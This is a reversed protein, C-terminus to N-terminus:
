PRIIYILAGEYSESYKKYQAKSMFAKGFKFDYILGNAEDYIDLFGKGSKGNFYQNYSLGRSGFRREYRKLLNMAYTHKATGAFRGSGAIASEAKVAAREVLQGTTLTKTAMMTIGKSATGTIVGAVKTVPIASVIKLNADFGTLENDYRDKGTINGKIGDWALAIPNFQDTEYVFRSFYDMFSGSGDGGYYQGSGTKSLGASPLNVQSNLNTFGSMNPPPGAAKRSGKGFLSKFNKSIFNGASKIGKSWNNFNLNKKSWDKIGWNDWNDKIFVIANGIATQQNPCDACDGGNSVANGSIDINRTPNALAYSYQNFNQTNETDQILNDASLFRHLIPDYLRANMNILGVSQLHEHGTYGRDLFVLGSLMNGAGDQVKLIKGWADFLRKEVIVGDEDTIAMISGQYDRHLYFYKSANVGDGKFIMPASYADGNIYTVFELAGTSRNEKIEMSGDASYHKRYKRQWFDPNFDGYYMVSRQNDANYTIYINDVGPENILQPNNYITYYVQMERGQPEQISTKRITVDDFWINGQGNNDLRINLKKINAPVLFTGELKTWQNTVNSVVNSVNTFYGQEQNTKMFLVIEAQPGESKFWASFTYQTPEDNDIAIWKDSHVYQETTLTNALKISAIGTHYTNSDYSFFNDAPHRAQGWGEKSEMGDNFIGLRNQYYSVGSSSLDVSTNQYPKDTKTYRYNGVANDSIKGSPDYSQFASQGNADNFTTLRDGSDYNFQENWSGIVDYIRKNLNDTNTNFETKLTMINAAPTTTKDHKIETLYGNSDYSNTMKIGNGIINELLQGEANLSNTQWLVHSSNNDLIQFLDGNKYVNKTAVTSSKGNLEATKTEVDIRGFADYTFSRTFKTMGPKDEVISLLKKSNPDYNMTTFAANTAIEYGDIYTIKTPLKTTNDYEYITYNDSSNGTIIRELPKGTNDRVIDNVYDGNTEFTIEGFDNNTYSYTGASDDTLKNKRGWNDQEINIQVGNYDTKKLNGDAFYKYNITGGNDQLSMLDGVANIQGTRFKGGDTFSTTLGSYSLTTSRGSSYNNQIPRSYIDFIVENWKSPSSFYPESEKFNRDYIDYVYDVYSFIGNINKTGSKIKRGLDDFTEEGASGDEGTETVVTKYSNKSYSYSTSKNLNDNKINLKKFWPDYTYSISLGYPNTEKKLFGNTDYEFLTILGELDIVKTLFRGSGDYEYHTTRGSLSGSQITKQILNGFIDYSNLESLTSSNSTKEVNSLLNANNYQYVESYSSTDGSIAVSTSKKHVRDLIYPNASQSDYETAEITTQVTSAGEKIVTTTNLPNNFTNFTNSRESITNNIVNNEINSLNQLKFVKNLQLADSSNYNFNSKLVYDSPTYGVTVPYYMYPVTFNETVAGRLSIDNKSVTSFATYADNHWDTQTVSRFGVFGLGQLNTVAGYYAFLRKKYVDNSQKEVKSVLYLNPDITIDIDPYNSIGTSPLYVSNYPYLGSYSKDLPTYTIIEQVGDGTTIKTLLNGRKLDGVSNFFHIRSNQAFAIKLTSSVKNIGNNLKKVATQSLYIPIAYINIDSQNGTSGSIPSGTFDGTANNFYCYVTAIGTSSGSGKFCTTTILDSKDDNDADIAFYNYTNYSDNARFILNYQKEANIISTGTSTYKVWTSTGVTKPILFDSKGDGNYDGMLIPKAIDIRSDIATNQYLLVLGNSDNLSYIRVYGADFVFFDSKGDGDFDAVEIKSAASLATVLEGANFLFNTTNDRKLDIFYVKKSTITTTSTGTCRGTRIDPVCSSTRSMPMDIAIVDTLGDGNFDGSLIKKPFIKYTTSLVTCSTNCSTASVATPFDVTRDYQQIIPYTLSMSYVTFTYNTDTKKVVTWGQPMVKNNWSLWTTTFIDEFVGVPHEFGFNANVGSELGSYFWYKNKTDKPYIIFDMKGDEDFDGTVTEATQTSIGSLDVSTTVPLYTLPYGELSSGYSFVTPNYSKAGDGSKETISQIKDGALVLDYNRYGIGSSTVIIKQLLKNNIFNIDGIYYNEPIQRDTYTFQIKNIEALISGFGGYSVESIRLVNNTVAYTYHISVGQANQWYTIAYTSLSRSDTSSGYEAVSGDPYELRFYAPGYNAGGPHVGYSTIKLNSYQETEYVAGNVGYTQGSGNKLILRQGDLAFRDLNDFDVPDIIGDHFKTSPIRTIVSLGSIDWGRAARGSIGSQSNYNLSISPEVGNIGPPTIIPISYNANGALSVNLIGETIGTEASNGTPPATALNMSAFSSVQESSTQLSQTQDGIRKTIVIDTVPIGVNDQASILFSSFLFLIIFYFQKM